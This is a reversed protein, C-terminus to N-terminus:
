GPMVSIGIFLIQRNTQEAVRVPYIRGARLAAVLDDYGFEAIGMPDDYVLDKDKLTIRIRTAPDLPVSSWTPSGNWIPTLTDRDANLSLVQVPGSRTFLEAVGFPEPRDLSNSSVSFLLNTVAQYPDPAGLAALLGGTVTPPVKGPGDWDTGDVKSPGIKADLISV